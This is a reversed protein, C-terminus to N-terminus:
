NFKILYIVDLLSLSNMYFLGFLIVTHDKLLKMRIILDRLSKSHGILGKDQSKSEAFGTSM